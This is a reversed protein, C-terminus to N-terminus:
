LPRRSPEFARLVQSPTLIEPLVHADPATALYILDFPVAARNWKALEAAIRPDANTWDAELLAVRHSRIYRQVDASGFVVRKNAQCTACWRATFDLFIPRGSARLAAVREPSWAEWQLDNATSGAPWGLIVGLALLAASAAGGSRRIALSHVPATSRGYTWAAMAILTLAFLCNLLANAPTQGALVWVLYGVTAYLPFALLQKVTHMWRGAKPVFRRAGPFSSLLVYPTSLGLAIMAFLILSQAPPLSLASGLAPALFPASCPAAVVTALVGSFFSGSYGTRQQLKLGSGMVATGFEFVGSLSLAFVILLAALGFVFPASQLQFGWGLHHGGARLVAVLGALIWFSVLVGASYVLGHTTARRRSNGAQAVFGLIKIALVPFVCPMFNLILGGAFALALLTMSISSEPAGSVSTNVQLGQYTGTADTYGVVGLLKQATATPWSGADLKLRIFSKEIVVTQPHDYAVLTNQPYFHPDTMRGAGSLTLWLADAGRSAHVGVTTSVSPMPVRILDARVSGNPRPATSLVPLTLTLNAHGPVCVKACMLWSALARLTISGGITADAPSTITVPLYTLGEYGQGTIAGQPDHILVPTPWQLDGPQWGQPLSWTLSTPYGIGANVWFTHWPPEHSLRLALHLPRGPQVSADASVLTASVQARAIPALLLQIMMLLLARTM